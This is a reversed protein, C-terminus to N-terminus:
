FSMNIHTNLSLFTRFGLKLIPALIFYNHPLNKNLFHRILHVIIQTKTIVYKSVHGYKQKVFHLLLIVMGIAYCTLIVTVYVSATYGSQEHMDLIKRRDILCTLDKGCM